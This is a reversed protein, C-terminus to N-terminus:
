PKPTQLSWVAWVSIVPEARKSKTRGKAVLDSAGTIPGPELRQPVNIFSVDSIEAPSGPPFGFPTMISCPTITGTCGRVKSPISDFNGRKGDLIVTAELAIAALRADEFSTFTFNGPDKCGSFVKICSGKKFSVNFTKGGVVVGDAGTLQGTGDILLSVEAEAGSFFSLFIFAAFFTAIVMQSLNPRLLHSWNWSSIFIKMNMQETRM